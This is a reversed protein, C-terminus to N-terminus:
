KAEWYKALSTDCWSQACEHSALVWWPPSDRNVYKQLSEHWWIYYNSMIILSSMSKPNVSIAAPIFDRWARPGFSNLVDLDQRYRRLAWRCFWQCIGNRPYGILFGPAFCKKNSDDFDYFMIFSKGEFSLPETYKIENDLMEATLHTSTRFRQLKDSLFSDITRNPIMDVDIVLGGFFELILPRAFDVKRMDLFDVGKSDSTKIKDYGEWLDPWRRQILRDIEEKGFIFIDWMPNMKEWLLINEMRAELIEYKGQYWVFNIRKPLNDM